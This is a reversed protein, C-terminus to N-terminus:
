GGRQCSGAARGAASRLRPLPAEPLTVLTQLPRSAALEAELDKMRARLLKVEDGRREFLITLAVAGLGLLMGLIAGWLVAYRFGPAQVSLIRQGDHAANSSGVVISLTMLNPVALVIAGILLASRAKWSLGRRAIQALLLVPLFTFVAGYVLGVMIGTSIRGNVQRGISQAWARPVISALVLYDAFAVILGAAVIVVWRLGVKLRNEREAAPPEPPTTQETEETM